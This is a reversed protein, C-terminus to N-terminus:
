IFIVFFLFFISNNELYQSEKKSKIYYIRTAYRDTWRRFPTLSIVLYLHNLISMNILM